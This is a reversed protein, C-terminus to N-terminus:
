PRVRDIVVRVQEQQGPIVPKVEGELDGSQPTASGTKSIRAGVVVQDFNSLKMQPRMAMSDDLTVTAPLEGATLRRAALPMPPGSLARAFVFLTDGPAARTQLTDALGIEVQISAGAVAAPPSSTSRALPQEPTAAAIAPAPASAPATGGAQRAQELYKELTAVDEGGPPLLAQLRTWHVLAQTADGGQFEALGMMWLGNPNGPEIELVSAILEAPRGQLSNQTKALAEAYGLLLTTDDPALRRANEYAELARQDRGMALYSRALMVWGELNDPDEQLRQALRQVLVEMDPLPQGAAQHANNAQVPAAQLREIAGQDGVALYLVVALAPVAAPLVLAAWRGERQAAPTAASREDIDLLLEKELDRRAADYQDQELNGAALDADLEDMQQRFVALNVQNEDLDPSRGADLPTRARLIPPVIFLLALGMLGAALIWFIIM